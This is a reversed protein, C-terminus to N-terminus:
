FRVCVFCVLLFRVGSFVLGSYQPYQSVTSTSKSRSICEGLKSIHGINKMHAILETLSYADEACHTQLIKAKSTTIGDAQTKSLVHKRQCGQSLYLCVVPVMNQKDLGLTCSGGQEETGAM